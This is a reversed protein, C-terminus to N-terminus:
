RPTPKLTIWSVTHINVQKIYKGRYKEIFINILLSPEKVWLFHEVFICIVYLFDVLSSLQVLIYTHSFFYKQGALLMKRIILVM